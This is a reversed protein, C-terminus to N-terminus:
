TSHNEEVEFEVARSKVVAACFAKENVQDLAKKEHIKAGVAKVRLTTVFNIRSPERPVMTTRDDVSASRSRISVNIAEAMKSMEAFGAFRMGCSAIPSKVTNMM